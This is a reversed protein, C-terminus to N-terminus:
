ILGRIRAAIVAERRNRVSLRQYIRALHNKVTLPSLFIRDAIQANTLGEAALQLVERERESLTVITRPTTQSLFTKALELAREPTGLLTRTDLNGVVFSHQFGGPEGYRIALRIARHSKDADGACAYALAKLAHVRVLPASQQRRTGEAILGDILHHAEQWQGRVIRLHAMVTGPVTQGFSRPWTDMSLTEEAAWADALDFNGRDLWLQALVTRTRRVDIENLDSNAERIATYLIERADDTRDLTHLIKARVLPIEQMWYGVPSVPGIEDMHSLASAPNGHELDILALRMRMLAMQDPYAASYSDILHQFLTSATTLNGELAARDAQNPLVFIAWWRQDWPLHERAIRATEFMRVADDRQGKHTSLVEATAAARMREHYADVPLMEIADIARSLAQSRNGQWIALLADLVRLRGRRLPDSSERWARAIRGHLRTGESVDGVSLLSLAYWFALDDQTLLPADPITALLDILADHDDRIAFEHCYSTLSVITADWRGTARALHIADQPTGNALFWTTAADIANTQLSAGTDRADSRISARRLRDLSDRLIPIIHYPRRGDQRDDHRTMPVIARMADFTAIEGDVSAAVAAWLDWDLWPFASAMLLIARTRDDLLDLISSSVYDDLPLWQGPDEDAGVLHGALAIGAAWGKTADMVSALAQPSQEPFGHLAFLEATESTTLLLDRALIHRFQGALAVHGLASILPLRGAAMISLNAPSGAATILGSVLRERTISPLFDLCDITIICPTAQSALADFLDAQRRRILDLEDTTALTDLLAAVPAALTTGGHLQRVARLRSEPKGSTEVAVVTQGAQVAESSWQRILTSKGYGTPATILTFRAAASHRDENLSLHLRPRALFLSLRPDPWDSGTM